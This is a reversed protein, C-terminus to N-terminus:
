LYYNFQIYITHVRVQTNYLTMGTKFILDYQDILLQKTPHTLTM